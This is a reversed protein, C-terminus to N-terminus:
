SSWQLPKSRAVVTCEDGFVLQAADISLPPGAHHAENLASSENNYWSLRESPGCGDVDKYLSSLGAPVSCTALMCQPARSSCLVTSSKFVMLCWSLMSFTLQDKSTLTSAGSCSGACLVLFSPVM